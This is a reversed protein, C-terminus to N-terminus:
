VGLSDELFALWGGYDTIDPADMLAHSECLFGKVLTGDSLEITGISLPRPIEAVFAGFEAPPLDWVEVAIPAGDGSNVRQLGPKPPTTALAFLRYADSTTTIKQLTAGRSTLQHNLPQGRLHAGVVAVSIHDTRVHPIPEDLLEAALTSVAHDHHARAFVNVGFPHGSDTFGCPVTWSCFGLLNCFNNLKGFAANTSLPAGLVEEISFTLPVAPMFFADIHSYEADIRHKIKSVTRQDAVYRHAPLNAANTIITGVVPDVGSAIRDCGDIFAGVAEYREAVFAGDYLLAGCEFLPAPDFSVVAVDPLQRLKKVAEEFALAYSTDLQLTDLIPIGITRLRPFSHHRLAQSMPEDPDIAAMVDLARRAAHATASFITVCDLTRCAPIVGRNSIVGFTPKCSVIGNLAAPVRGSGATDTGLAIDVLGLAVAVASGSSSGGSILGPNLANRVAGYPSRTGVLGTAFQDLNTKGVVIAGADVLLQVATASATALYAYGPCAATTPMGEVDINDKVAVVMGALPLNVGEAVAEDILMAISLADQRDVLHIWIEPRDCLEIRAYFEDLREATSRTM